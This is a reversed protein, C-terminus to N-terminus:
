RFFSLISDEWSKELVFVGCDLSFLELVVFGFLVSGFKENRGDSDFLSVVLPVKGPTWNLGSLSLVCIM